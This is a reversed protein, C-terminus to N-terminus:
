EEGLYTRNTFIHTHERLYARLREESANLILEEPFDIEELMQLAFSFYGVKAEFHADSDVVIPVGYKKCALAIKKCNEVNQTRVEFTHNNIEVLKHNEGFAPIVRDVDYSFLPDGSHAIVNIHPNKAVQLWLHTSKEVNPDQLGEQGLHHISAIGWDLRAFDKESVDLTGDFDMINAEIGVITMVGRHYLPLEHLCSFYFEEPKPAGPMSVAHDTIAIASLGKNAAAQVMETLTSYAHTSALTHTHLDAILHYRGM